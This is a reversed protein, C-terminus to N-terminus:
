WYYNGGGSLGLQKAYRPLNCSWYGAKTKDKKESCNHRAAFNKRAEPDNIKSKLDGADGFNVRVVNGKENKVFVYYKKPGGRKPSNLKVDKDDDETFMLPCDLPVKMGEYEGFEGLDGRIIDLDGEELEVQGNKWLERTENIFQYFADSDLRYHNNFVGDGTSIHEQIEGRIRIKQELLSEQREEMFQKFSKSM